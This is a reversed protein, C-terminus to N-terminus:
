PVRVLGDLICLTLCASLLSLLYRANRLDLDKTVAQRLGAGNFYLSNDSSLTLCAQGISAGQILQWSTSESTERDFNDKMYDQLCGTCIFKLTPLVPTDNPTSNVIHYVHFTVM